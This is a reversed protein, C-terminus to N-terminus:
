TTLNEIHSWDGEWSLVCDTGDVYIEETELRSGQGGGGVEGEEGGAEKQGDVILTPVKTYLCITMAYLLESEILRNWHTDSHTWKLSLTNSDLATLKGM